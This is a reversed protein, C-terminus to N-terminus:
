SRVPARDQRARIHGETVLSHPCSRGAVFDSLNSLTTGAIETLAEDTLFGQHSSIIVNPFTMLRMMVDDEIIEGSHDHYFLEREAEYVEM